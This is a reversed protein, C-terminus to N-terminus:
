SAGDAAPTARQYGFSIGRWIHYTLYINAAAFSLLVVGYLGLEDLLMLGIVLLCNAGLLPFLLAAFLAAPLGFLWGESRRIRLISVIGGATVLGAGLLILPSMLLLGAESEFGNLAFGLALLLLTLVGGAASGVALMSPQPLRRRNEVRHQEVLRERYGEPAYAEPPDLSALVALVDARTPEGSTRRSLLEHIQNEVEEVISVREARSVEAQLLVREITDLRGDILTRLPADLELRTMMM